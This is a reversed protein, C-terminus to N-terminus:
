ILLLVWHFLELLLLQGSKVEFKDYYSNIVTKRKTTLFSSAMFKGEIRFLKEFMDTYSLGFYMSFELGLNVTHSHIVCCNNPSELM